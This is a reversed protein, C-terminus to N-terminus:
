ISDAIEILLIEYKKAQFEIASIKDQDTEPMSEQIANIEKEFFNMKTELKKSAKSLKKSLQNMEKSFSKSDEFDVEFGEMIDEFNDTEVEINEAVMEMKESWREMEESEFDIAVELSNLTKEIQNIKEKQKDNLQDFSFKKNNVEYTRQGNHNQIQIHHGNSLFSDSNQSQYNSANSSQCASLLACMILTASMSLLPNTWQKNSM